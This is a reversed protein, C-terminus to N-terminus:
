LCPSARTLSPATPVRVDIVCVDTLEVQELVTLAALLKAPLDEVTGLRVV